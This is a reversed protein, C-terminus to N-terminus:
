IPTSPEEFDVLTAWCTIDRYGGEWMELSPVYPLVVEAGRLGLAACEAEALAFLAQETPYPTADDTEDAVTGLFRWYYDSSGCDM